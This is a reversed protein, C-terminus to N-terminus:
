WKVTGRFLYYGLVVVIYLSGLTISIGAIRNHRMITQEASYHMGNFTTVLRETSIWRNAFAEIERLVSPRLFVLVGILAALVSGVLLMGMLADSLWWYPRPILASLTRLNYHFLFTYLVGMSGVSVLAGVVRNHRYFYRETWHPRDLMMELKDAGVWRSFYQNLQVVKQPRFLIGAGILIGVFSGCWLFMVLSHRVIQNLLDM